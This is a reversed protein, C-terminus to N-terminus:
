SIAFFHCECGYAYQCAARTRGGLWHSLFAERTLILFITEFAESLAVSISIAFPLLFDCHLLQRATPIPFKPLVHPCSFCSLTCTCRSGYFCCSTPPPLFAPLLRFFLFHIFIHLENRNKAKEIKGDETAQSDTVFRWTTFHCQLELKTANKYLCM